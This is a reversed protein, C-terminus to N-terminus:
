SLAWDPWSHLLQVALMTFIIKSTVCHAVCDTGLCIKTAQRFAAVNNLLSPNTEFLKCLDAFHCPDTNIWLVRVGVSVCVCVYVCVFRHDLVLKNEEIVFFLCLFPSLSSMAVKSGYSDYM